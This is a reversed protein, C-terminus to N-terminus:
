GDAKEGVKRGKAEIYAIVLKALSMGVLGSCFAATYGAEGKMEGIWRELIALMLPTAYHSMLAGSIVSIVGERLRRTESMFWRVLGGAAGALGAKGAEGTVWAMIMAAYLLFGEWFSPPPVPDTPIM